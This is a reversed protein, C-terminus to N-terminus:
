ISAAGVSRAAVSLPSDAPDVSLPVEISAPPLVSATASVTLSTPPTGGLPMIASARPGLGAELEMAIRRARVADPTAADLTARVVARALGHYTVRWPSPNPVHDAPDGSGTGIVVGPGATVNFSVNVAGAAAGFVQEGAADVITARVLAVDSGDLYLASGTGTLPSPADVSLLIAAAPGFSARSHTALVTTGDAALAEATLTGPSFAVAPFIAWTDPVAPQVGGGPAPAGNLLLRVFAGSSYVHIVRTSNVNNSQWSEVIHCVSVAPLPPRGPDTTAVAALYQSRYWYSPAKPLQALDYQGHSASVHPWGNPEGLYDHGSWTMLGASFETRYAAAWQPKQVCDPNAIGLSDYYAVSANRPVDWDEGRQSKCGCCETAMVPKAPMLSHFSSFDAASQHSFGQVDLAESAGQSENVQAMFMNATTARSGDLEEVAARMGVTPDALPSCQNENCFSWAFISAHQRDRRVLDALDTTDQALLAAESNVRNEDLVLVGLRDTLELTAPEAANHAMRWANGGMGRVQQLRLLNIRAPVAMGVGAANNHECFGRVRVNEGNLFLGDSSNFLMSRLGLTSNVSDRLTESDADFVLAVLTYLFPRAVSWLEVESMMFPPPSVTVAGGGGGVNAPTPASSAVLTAGDASFVRVVVVVGVDAPGHNEVTVHPAVTASAAVLGDAPAAGGPRV